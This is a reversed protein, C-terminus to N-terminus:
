TCDAVMVSWRGQLSNCPEEGPEHPKGLPDRNGTCDDSEYAYLTRPSATFWIQVAHDTSYLTRCENDDYNRYKVSSGRCDAQSNWKLAMFEAQVLASPILLTSLALSSSLFTRSLM